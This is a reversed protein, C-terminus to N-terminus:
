HSTAWVFTKKKRENFHKKEYIKAFHFFLSELQKLGIPSNQFRRSCAKSKDFFTESCAFFSKSLLGDVHFNGGASLM